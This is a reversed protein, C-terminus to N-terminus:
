VSGCFFGISDIALGSRGHIGKLNCHSVVFPGGGCGGFPGFIGGWNTVFVLQDVFGGSRGFVGIFREGNAVSITFDYAVGGTGGYYGGKSQSGDSHLYTFQLAEVYQSSRIFIGSVIANCNDPLEIFPGGGSGGYPGM